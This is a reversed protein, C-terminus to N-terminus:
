AEAFIPFARENQLRWFFLHRRYSDVHNRFYLFPMTMGLYDQASFMAAVSLSIGYSGREPCYRLRWGCIRCLVHVRPYFLATHVLIYWGLVFFACTPCCGTHM